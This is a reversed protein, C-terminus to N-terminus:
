RFQLNKPSTQLASGSVKEVSNIGTNSVINGNDEVDIWQGTGGILTGTEIRLALVCNPLGV